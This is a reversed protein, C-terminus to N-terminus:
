GGVEFHHRLTEAMSPELFRRRSSVAATAGWSSRVGGTIHGSDPLPNSASGNLGAPIDCCIQRAVPLLGRLRVLRHITRMTQMSIAAANM